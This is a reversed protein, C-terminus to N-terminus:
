FRSERGRERERLIEGERKKIDGVDKEGRDVGGQLNNRSDCSNSQGNTMQSVMMM